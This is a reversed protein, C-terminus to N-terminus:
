KTGEVKVASTLRQHLRTQRSGGSACFGRSLLSKSVVTGEATLMRGPVCFNLLMQQLLAHASPFSLRSPLGSHIWTGQLSIKVYSASSTFPPQRLTFSLRYTGVYCRACAHVCVYVCCVHAYVRVFKFHCQGLVNKTHKRHDM